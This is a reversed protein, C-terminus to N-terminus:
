ATVKVWTDTEWVRETEPEIDEDDTEEEIDEYSVALTEFSGNEFRVVDLIGDDVAQRDEDSISNLQSMSGDEQIFLYM